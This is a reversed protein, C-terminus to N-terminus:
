YDLAAESHLSPGLQIDESLATVPCGALKLREILKRIALPSGDFRVVDLGAMDSIPNLDGTEVMITREPTIAAAMGAEFLVNARPQLGRRVEQLPSRSASDPHPQVIDDPSLLVIIVQALRFATQIVDGVFPSAHGTARVM